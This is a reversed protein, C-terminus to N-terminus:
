GFRLLTTGVIAATEARLVLDGLTVIHAKAERALTLEAETFGGEPGIFLAVCSTQHLKPLKSGGSEHFFIRVCKDTYTMADALKLPETIVPLTVRGSQEAAERVIDNWRKPTDKPRKIVRDTLLPIFKVVGLETCKQLTWEFTDKKTMAACVTIIPTPAPKVSEAFGARVNIVGMVASKTIETIQGDLEEGDGIMLSIADGVKLRLVTVIQKHLPGAPISFAKASKAIWEEPVFFRATRM